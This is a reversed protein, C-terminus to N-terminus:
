NQSGVVLFINLGQIMDLSARPLQSPDAACTKDDRHGVPTSEGLSRQRKEYQPCWFQICYELHLRVLASYLPLIVERSRRAVGGKIRRLIGKAKKAAMM